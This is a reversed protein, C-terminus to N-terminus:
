IHSWKCVILSEWAETSEHNPLTISKYSKFDVWPSPTTTYRASLLSVPLHTHTHTHSIIHNSLIYYIKLAWVLILYRYINYTHIYYGVMYFHETLLHELNSNNNSDSDDAQRSSHKLRFFFCLQSTCDQPSIRRLPVSFCAARPLPDWQDRFKSSMSELNPM